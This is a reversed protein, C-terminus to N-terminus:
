YVLQEPNEALDYSGGKKPKMLFLGVVQAAVREILVQRMLGRLLGKAGSSSSSSSSSGSSSSGSSSSGSSSNATNTNNSSSSSSLAALQNNLAALKDLRTFFDPHQVDPVAPFLREATANTSV